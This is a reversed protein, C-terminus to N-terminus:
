RMGAIRWAGFPSMRMMASRRVSPGPSMPSWAMTIVARARAGVDGHPEIARASLQPKKKQAVFLLEIIEGAAVAARGPLPRNGNVLLDRLRLPILQLALGLISVRRAAPAARLPRL